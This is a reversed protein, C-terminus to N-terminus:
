RYWTKDFDFCYNIHRAIAETQNSKCMQYRRNRVVLFFEEHNPVGHLFEATHVADTFRFDFHYPKGDEDSTGDIIMHIKCNEDFPGRDKVMDGDHFVRHAMLM